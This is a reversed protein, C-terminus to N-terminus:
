SCRSKLVIGVFFNPCLRRSEILQQEGQVQTTAPLLQNGQQQEMNPSNGLMSGEEVEIVDM